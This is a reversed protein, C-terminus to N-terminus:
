YIESYDSIFKPKCTDMRNCVSSVGKEDVCMYKPELTLYAMNYILFGETSFLIMCMLYALIQFRGFSGGILNIIDDHECYKFTSM